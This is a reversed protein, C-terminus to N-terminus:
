FSKHFRASNPRNSWRCETHISHLDNVAELLRTECSHQRRFSHQEKCIINYNAIHTSISSCVINLCSVVFVLSLFLDIIHHIVVHTRKLVPVASATKWDNSLQRLPHRFIMPAIDTATDKLFRPPIGDPGPAKHLQLNSSLRAVGDVDVPLLTPYSDGDLDKM